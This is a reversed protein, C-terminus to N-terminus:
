QPISLVEIVKTLATVPRQQPWKAPDCPLTSYGVEVQLKLAAVPAGGSAM